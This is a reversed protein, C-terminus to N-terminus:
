SEDFERGRGFFRAAVAKTVNWVNETSDTAIIRRFSSIILSGSFMAVELSRRPFRRERHGAIFALRAPAASSVGSLRAVLSKNARDNENLDLACSGVLAALLDFTTECYMGVIDFVVQHLPEVNWFGGDGDLCRGLVFQVDLPDIEVVRSARDLPDDRFRRKCSPQSQGNAYIRADSFLVPLPWAIVCNTPRM